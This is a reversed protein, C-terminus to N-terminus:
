RGGLAAALGFLFLAAILILAVLAFPVWLPALVLWWSWDIVETLKLAIFLVALLSLFGVGGGQAASDSQSM